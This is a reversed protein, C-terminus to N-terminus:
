ALCEQYCLVKPRIDDEKERSCSTITVAMTVMIFVFVLAIMEGSTLRDVTRVRLWQQLRVVARMIRLALVVVDM